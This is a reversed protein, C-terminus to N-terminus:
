VNRLNMRGPNEAPHSEGVNQCSGGGERMEDGAEPRLERQGDVM